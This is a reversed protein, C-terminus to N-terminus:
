MRRKTSAAGVSKKDFDNRKKLRKWTQSQNEGRGLLEMRMREREREREGEREKEKERIVSHVM